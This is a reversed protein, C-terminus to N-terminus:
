LFWKFLEKVEPDADLIIKDNLPKLEENMFEIKNKSKKNSPVVSVNVDAGYKLVLGDFHWGVDLYM